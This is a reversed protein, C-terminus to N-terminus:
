ENYIGALQRYISCHIILTVKNSLFNKYLNHLYARIISIILPM